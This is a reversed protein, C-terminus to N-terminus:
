NNDRVPRVSLGAYKSSNNDVVAFDYFDIISACEPWEQEEFYSCTSLWYDGTVNQNYVRIGDRVGSAPLFVAGAAEMQAWQALTYSNDNWSGDWRHVDYGSTFSCGSPMIWSDPLIILGGVGNINGPGRKADADTRSFILYHWETMTLTRWIHIANGGNCIANHYAWDAEAYDGILSNTGLSGPYYDSYSESTSWPQYCVAGSNWGSTGWGFLDIWGSYTSSINSNASGVYNYQNPALCWTGTSAQFQLNGQSFYVQKTPSVSFLGNLRGANPTFNLSNSMTITKISGRRIGITVGSNLTKTCVGGDSSYIRICLSTYNHEPLYIYFDKQSNISQPTSCVLMASKHPDGEGYSVYTLSPVGESVTVSHRGTLEVDSTIEIASVSVGSKQLRLRLVGCLHMFNLDTNDSIAYMPFGTLSGDNSMQVAPLEITGDDNGASAPYIATYSSSGPNGSTLAFTTAGGVNNATYIGYGGGNGYVKIQDGQQWYLTNDYLTTKGDQETCQEMTATFEKVVANEKSCSAALVGAAVAAFAFM